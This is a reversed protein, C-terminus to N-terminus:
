ILELEILGDSGDRRDAEVNLGHCVLINFEIDPHTSNVM